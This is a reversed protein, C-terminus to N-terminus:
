AAARYTGSVNIEDSTTWTFPDTSTIATQASRAADTVFLKLKATTTSGLVVSCHYTAGTADFLTGTGINMKDATGTLATSTVPLSFIADAAGGGMPAAATAVLTLQFHIVDGIRIYVGTETWDGEDLRGTLTPNWTDWAWTNLTSSGNKLHEPKIVGDAIGTGDNFSADNTGLINWKAASPQEGFVVSWSAYAM